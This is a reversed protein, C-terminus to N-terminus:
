HVVVRMCPFATTRQAVYWVSLKTMLKTTFVWIKAASVKSVKSTNPICWLPFKCTLCGEIQHQIARLRRHVTLSLMYMKILNKVISNSSRSFFNSQIQFRKTKCCTSMMYFSSRIQLMHLIDLAAFPVNRNYRCLLWEAGAGIIVTFRLVWCQLYVSESWGRLIMSVKREAAKIM